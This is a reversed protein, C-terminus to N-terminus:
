GSGQIKLLMNEIAMQFNTNYRLMKRTEEVKEIMGHIAKSTFIKSLSELTAIKDMNIILKIGRTEKYVLIDRFWLELLDLVIGVMDRREEFFRTYGMAEIMGAHALKQILELVDERLQQYEQSAALELARGPIGESLKAFVMAQRRPIELRKEIIDAIHSPSLRPIKIQQCRSLVTPLMNSINDALLLIVAHRPPEELTKLLANQAQPTMTDAKDIIYIKRDGQFPKINIDSEIERIADVGISKKGSVVRYVDPHNGSEFQRCSICIDCPEQGNGRCLLAKAFINAFTKKGVGPPGIFIYSHSIRGSGLMAKLTNVLLVQGIIDSFNM